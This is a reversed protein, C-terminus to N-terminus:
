FGIYAFVISHTLHKYPEYKNIDKYIHLVTPQYQLTIFRLDFHVVRDYFTYTAM